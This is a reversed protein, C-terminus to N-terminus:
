LGAICLQGPLQPPQLLRQRMIHHHQLSVMLQKPLPAPVPLCLDTRQAGPVALREGQSQCALGASPTPCSSYRPM